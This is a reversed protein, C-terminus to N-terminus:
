APAGACTGEPPNPKGAAALAQHMETVTAIQKFQQGVVIDVVDDTRKVDLEGVVGKNLFYARLVWAAGVRKPGYRLVAVNEVRKALPDNDAKVVTFDRNKFDTAVDNALGPKDTANFVNIKVDKPALLTLNVPVQGGTCTGGGVIAGRQRDKALTITVVIAAAIVLVGVIALARIRAFSM